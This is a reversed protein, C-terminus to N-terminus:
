LSVFLQHDHSLLFLVTSGEPSNATNPKSLAFFDNKDFYISASLWRRAAADDPVTVEDLDGSEDVQLLLLSSDDRIIALYPDAISAGVAVREENTEDDWVPYIQAL